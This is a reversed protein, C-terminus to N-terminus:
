FSSYLLAPASADMLRGLTKKKIRHFIYSSKKIITMLSKKRSFFCLINQCCATCLALAGSLEKDELCSIIYLIHTM